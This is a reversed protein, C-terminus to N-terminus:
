LRILKASKLVTYDPGGKKLRSEMLDISKVEIKLNIEKEIFPREEPEIRRWQWQRIRGLTIHPSFEQEKKFVNNQGLKVLSFFQDLKNKLSALEKSKQGFAWIMRPEKKGPPAYSIKKFTISFPKSQSSIKEIAESLELIEENGIYGIFELTIHLNEKKTWKIPSGALTEVTSFSFLKRTEEQYESLKEKIKELLNIAIFIRHRQM